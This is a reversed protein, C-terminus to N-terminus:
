HEVVECGREILSQGWSLLFDRERERWRILNKEFCFTYCKEIKLYAYWLHPSHLHCLHPSSPGRHIPILLLHWIGPDSLNHNTRGDFTQIPKRNEKGTMIAASPPRKGLPLPPDPRPGALPETNPPNCTSSNWEDSAWRFLPLLSRSCALPWWRITARRSVWLTWSESSEEALLAIDTQNIHSILCKAECPDRAGWNYYTTYM